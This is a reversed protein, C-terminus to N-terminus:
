GQDPDYSLLEELEANLEEFETEFGKLDAGIKTISEEYDGLAGSDDVFAM